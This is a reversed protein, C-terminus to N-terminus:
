LHKGFTVGVAYSNFAGPRLDYVFSPSISWHDPLEIEYELAFRWMFFSEHTEFEYSPGSLLVLRQWPKFGLITSVVVPTSRILDTEDSQKVVYRSLEIDASAGISWRHNLGYFYSFGWTPVILYQAQEAEKDGAPIHTNYMGISFRHRTSEIGEERQNHPAEHQGYAAISQVICVVILCSLTKM